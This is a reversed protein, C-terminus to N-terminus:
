ELHGEAHWDLSFLRVSAPSAVTLSALCYDHAKRYRGRCNGLSSEVVAKEGNSNDSLLLSSPSAILNTSADGDRAWM